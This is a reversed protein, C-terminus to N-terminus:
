DMYRKTWKVYCDPTKKDFKPRKGQCISKALKTDFPEGDFARRGTTIESMIVGFSYIDAAQTCKKGMLVEPTKDVTNIWYPLLVLPKPPKRGPDFVLASLWYMQLYRLSKYEITAIRSQPKVLQFKKKFKEARTGPYYAKTSKLLLEPVEPANKAPKLTNNAKALEKSTLIEVVGKQKDTRRFKEFKKDDEVLTEHDSKGLAENDVIKDKPKLEELKMEVDIEPKSIKNKIDTNLNTCCVKWTEYAKELGEAVKAEM